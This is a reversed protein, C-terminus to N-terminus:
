FYYDVPPFPPIQKETCFRRPPPPIIATFTRRAFFCSLLSFPLNSLGFSHSFSLQDPPFLRVLPHPPIRSASVTAVVLPAMLEDDVAEKSCLRDGPPPFYDPVLSVPLFFPRRSLGGVLFFAVRAVSLLPPFGWPNWCTHSFLRPCKGFTFPPVGDEPAFPPGILHLGLSCGLGVITPNRCAYPLSFM